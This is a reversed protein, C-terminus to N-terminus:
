YWDNARACVWLSKCGFYYSKRMPGFALCHTVFMPSSAVMPRAFGTIFSIYGVSARLQWCGITGYWVFIDGFFNNIHRHVPVLPNCWFFFAKARSGPLVMFNIQNSPYGLCETKNWRAKGRSSLHHSITGCFASAHSAFLRKFLPTCSSLYHAFAGFCFSAGLNVNYRDITHVFEQRAPM